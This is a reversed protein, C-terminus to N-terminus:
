RRWYRRSDGAHHKKDDNPDRPLLVKLRIELQELKAALEEVELAAMEQLEPDGAAEKLVQRASLEAQTTKWAEYTNVV